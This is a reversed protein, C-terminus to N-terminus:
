AAPKQVLFSAMQTPMPWDEGYMINTGFKEPMTQSHLVKFGFEYLTCLMNGPDIFIVPEEKVSGSCACTVVFVDHVPEGDKYFQKQPNFEVQHQLERYTDSLKSGTRIWLTGGPKLARFCKRIVLHIDEVNSFHVFLNNLDIFDYYNEEPQWQTIDLNESRMPLDFERASNNIADVFHPELDVSDLKMGNAILYMPTGNDGVGGIFAVGGPKIIHNRYKIFEPPFAGFNWVYDFKYYYSDLNTIYRDLNKM